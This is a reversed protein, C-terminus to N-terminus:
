RTSADWRDAIAGLRDVVEDFSFYGLGAQLMAGSYLLLAGELVTQDSDTGVAIEIRRLIELGISDRIRVIDPDHAALAALVAEALAPENTFIESTGRLAEVLRAGLSDSASPVPTDLRQLMRWNLEVVLHEKSRFYNYATTHTVGARTAV